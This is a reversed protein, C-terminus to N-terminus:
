KFEGFIGEGGFIYKLVLIDLDIMEGEDLEFVEYECLVMVGSVVDQVIIKFMVDYGGVNCLLFCLM